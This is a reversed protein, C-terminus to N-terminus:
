EYKQMLMQYVRCQKYDCNCYKVMYREKDERLIAGSSARFINKTAMNEEVGECSISANDSKAYFPCKADADGYFSM